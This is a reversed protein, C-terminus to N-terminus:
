CPIDTWHRVKSLTAAFTEIAMSLDRYSVTGRVCDLYLNRRAVHELSFAWFIGMLPNIFLTSGETRKTAHFDGFRGQVASIISANVISSQRPARSSVFECAEVYLQFESMTPLLSWSGLFGGEASLAAINELIHAHCVGHFTDIGFGLAVLFKQKVDQLDHAAVLSAMDEQPTGLGTEDGRLLSDTGGDILIITDPKLNENMWRYADAVGHAGTREIAYVPTPGHKKSLWYSLHVEPFYNSPGTTYGFVKLLSPVPRDGECFSLETFSLNALHVQKGAEKLWFFLPLGCFIDFGGGAGAILINQAGEIQKFFPIQM